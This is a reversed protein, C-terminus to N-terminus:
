HRARRRTAVALLVLSALLGAPTSAGGVGCGCGSTVAPDVAGDAKTSTGADPSAVSGDTATAAGSDPNAVSTGTDPAAIPGADLGADPGAPIAEATGSVTWDYPSEDPDDSAISVKVSWAGAATPTVSVVLSGQADIALSAAPQTTVNAACNTAESTSIPVTVALPGSGHNALTYTLSVPAGATTGEVADTAGAAIAAGARTIDLDPQPAAAATGQVTWNMPNKRPDNSAFSLEFSWAGAGSPTVALALTTTGSAAVTGAPQAAIIVSCNTASASAIPTTLTLPASGRNALSYTLAKAIGSATAAVSDTAGDAIAAGERTVVLAPTPTLVENTPTEARWDIGSAAYYPPTVPAVGASVLVVSRFPAVTVAAGPDSGDLRKWTGAPVAMTADAETDNFLLIANGQTLRTGTASAWNPANATWAAVTDLDGVGDQRVLNAGSAPLVFETNTMQGYDFGPAFSLAVPTPPTYPPLWWQNLSEPRVIRRTPLVVGLANGDITHDQNTAQGEKGELLLGAVRDDLAVNGRVTCHYNNPLFIGNGNSGYITNDTVVSDKFQSLFELWIGHGLPWWPHSTELDGLTDLIINERITSADCNTYVAAGDNLTGMTRVFVNREVTQGARGLIVGAYGTDVFRNLRLTAGNVSGLIVGAAHWSGSGGYGREVGIRLFLNRELLSGATGAPNAWGQVAVNRVDRFVCGRIVFPQADWTYRVADTEIQEFTCGEITAARNIELATSFHEFHIGTISTGSTTVGTKDSTLVEVKMSAPDVGVPPYVYLTGGSWFWEGPADLEDLDGDIFYGSGAETFPDQFKGDAGLDLTNTASHATVPRTEWWWSWRRWRVQAGTWRGAAVGPRALLEADVIQDANKNDVRLFGTNPWRALRLFRGDVWCALVKDAVPGTKVNADTTWSGTMAAPVSGTVVPDAGSGYALLQRGNGLAVESAFYSGGRQLRVRDSGGARTVAHALTSLPAAESGAAGDVGGPAVHWDAAQSRAAALVVLICVAPMLLVHRM